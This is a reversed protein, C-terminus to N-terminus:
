ATPPTNRQEEERAAQDLQTEVRRILRILQERIEPDETRGVLTYLDERREALDAASLGGGQLSPLHRSILQEHPPRPDNPDVESEWQAVAEALLHDSPPPVDARLMMDVIAGDSESEFGHLNLWANVSAFYARQEAESLSELLMIEAPAPADVLGELDMRAAPLLALAAMSYNYLAEGLLQWTLKILNGEETPASGPAPLRPEWKLYTDALLRIRKSDVFETFRCEIPDDMSGREMARAMMEHYTRLVENTKDTLHQSNEVTRIEGTSQVLAGWSAGLVGFKLDGKASRFDEVCLDSSWIEFLKDEAGPTRQSAHRAAVISGYRQVEYQMYWAKSIPHFSYGPRAMGSLKHKQTTQYCTRRWSLLCRPTPKGDM